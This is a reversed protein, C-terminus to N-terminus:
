EDREDARRVYRTRRTPTTKSSQELLEASKRLLQIAFNIKRAIQSRTDQTPM